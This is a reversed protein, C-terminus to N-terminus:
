HPDAHRPAILAATMAATATRVARPAPSFQNFEPRSLRLDVVGYQPILQQLQREDDDLQTALQWMYALAQRRVRGRWWSGIDMAITATVGVGILWPSWGLVMGLVPLFVWGAVTVMWYGWKRM